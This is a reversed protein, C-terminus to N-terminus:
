RKDGRMNRLIRNGYKKRVRIKRANVMYHWERRTSLLFLLPLDDKTFGAKFIAANERLLRKHEKRFGYELRENFGDSANSICPIIKVSIAKSEPEHKRMIHVRYWHLLRLALRRFHAIIKM